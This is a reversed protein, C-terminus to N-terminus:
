QDDSTTPPGVPPVRRREAGFHDHNRAETGAGSVGGSEVAPGEPEDFAARSWLAVRRGRLRGARRLVAVLLSSGNRLRLVQDRWSLSRCTM